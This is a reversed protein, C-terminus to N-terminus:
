GETDLCHKGSVLPMKSDVPTLVVPLFCAITLTPNPWLSFDYHDEVLGLVCNVTKLSDVTAGPRTSQTVINLAVLQFQGNSYCSSILMMKLVFSILLETYIVKNM